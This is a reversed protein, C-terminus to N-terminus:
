KNFLKPKNIEEPATWGLKILAERTSKEDYAWIDLEIFGQKFPTRINRVEIIKWIKDFALLFPKRINKRFDADLKEKNRWEIIFESNAFNRALVKESGLLLVSANTLKNKDKLLLKELVENDSLKLFEQNGSKKAWKEKLMKIANLDLDEITATDCFKASYDNQKENLIDTLTSKDMEVLQECNRM